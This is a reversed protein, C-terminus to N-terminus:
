GASAVIPGVSNSVVVAVDTVAASAGAAESGGPLSDGPLGDGPLGDGPTGAGPADGAPDGAGDSAGAPTTAVPPETTQEPPTPTVPNTTQVPPPVASSTQGAPPPASTRPAPVPRTATPTAAPAGTASASPTPVPATATLVVTRAIIRGDPLRTRIVTTSPMPVPQGSEDPASLGPAPNPAVQDHKDGATARSVGLWVGGVVALLGVATMAVAVSRRSRSPPRGVLVDRGADLDAHQDDIMVHALEHEIVDAVQAESLGRNVLVTREEPVWLGDAGDLDAFCITVGRDAAQRLLSPDVV